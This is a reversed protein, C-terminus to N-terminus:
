REHSLQHKFTSPFFKDHVFGVCAMEVRAVRVDACVGGRRHDERRAEAGEVWAWM